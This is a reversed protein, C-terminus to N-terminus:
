ATCDKQADNVQKAIEKFYEAGVDGVEYVKQLAPIIIDTAKVTNCYWPGDEAYGWQVIEDIVELRVDKTRPKQQRVISIFDKILPKLVPIIGHATAIVNKQYVPGAMFHMVEWAQNPYKTQKTISWADTTGLVSRKGTPGKPVHRMDWRIKAQEGWTKERSLPYTGDVCSM